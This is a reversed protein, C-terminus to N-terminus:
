QQEEAGPQITAIEADTPSEGRRPYVIYAAGIMAALLLVSAVEFPLVYQESDVLARGLDQIGSVPADAGQEPWEVGGMTLANIHLRGIKVEPFTIQNPWLTLLLLVLLVLALGLSAGAQTNQQPTDPNMVRRTLMVAFLILVAIAGVYIFVQVVALFGAELLVFMGAVGSLAVILFLAARFLNSNTVVVLASGLTLVGLIIFIIQELELM